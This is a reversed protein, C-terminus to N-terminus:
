YRTQGLPMGLKECVEKALADNATGSFVKWKDDRRQRVPKPKPETATHQKKDEGRAARSGYRNRKRGGGNFQAPKSEQQKWRRWM